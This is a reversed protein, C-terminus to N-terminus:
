NARRRPGELLRVSSEAWLQASQDQWAEQQPGQLQALLKSVFLRSKFTKPRNHNAIRKQTQITLCLYHGGQGNLEAGFKNADSADRLRSSSFHTCIDHDAVDSKRTLRHLIGNPNAIPNGRCNPQSTSIGRSHTAHWGGGARWPSPDIVWHRFLVSTLAPLDSRV